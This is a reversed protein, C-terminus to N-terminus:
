SAYFRKLAGRHDSVIIFFKQAMLFTFIAMKQIEDDSLSGYFLQFDVFFTRNQPNKM